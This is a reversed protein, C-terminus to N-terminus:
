VIGVIYIRNCRGYGIQYNFRLTEEGCIEQKLEHEMILWIYVCRTLIDLKFFVCVYLTGFSIGMACRLIHIYLYIVSISYMYVCITKYIIYIYIDYIYIYWIYIYIDYIYIDYRYTYIMYIYTMDIYIYTHTHTHTCIKIYKPSIVHSM